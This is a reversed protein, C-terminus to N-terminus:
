AQEEIISVMYRKKIPSHVGKEQLKKLAYRIAAATCGLARASESISAYITTENNITDLVSVSKSRAQSYKLLHELQEPSSNLRKLHELRKTKQEETWVRTKMKSKIQAKTKESHKYGFNSGATPLINYLPQLLGLYYQERAVAKDADCYELIELSFNAYGYKLLAKNIRSQGKKLEKKLYSLNFYNILRRELNVSSGVYSNGNVLNKWLYVGSQGKNEKIIQLKDLRSAAANSYIKFPQIVENAAVALASSKTSYNKVYAFLCPLLLLSIEQEGAAGPFIALLNANLTIWLFCLVSLIIGQSAVFNNKTLASQGKFAVTSIRRDLPRNTGVAAKVQSTFCCAQTKAFAFTFTFLKQISVLSKSNFM